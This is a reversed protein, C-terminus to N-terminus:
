SRGAESVATDRGAASRTAHLATLYADISDRNKTLCDIRATMRDRERELNAILDADADTIHITCPSDLCPLMQKIIRTPVGAELLGRIQEVRGILHEAYDRYGNAARDPALLGQEEYYRLLRAPVNTLAALEGIRVILNGDLRNAKV